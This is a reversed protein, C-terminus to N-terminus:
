VCFIFTLVCTCIVIADEPFFLLLPLTLDIQFVACRFANPSFFTEPPGDQLDLIQKYLATPYPRSKVDYM